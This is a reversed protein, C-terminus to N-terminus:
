APMSRAKQPTTGYLARFTRIFTKYNTLGNQEMLMPISLDSNKLESYFSMTRTACLFDLYTQGTYKKFIRCFYERSIGLRGAADELSVPERFHEQTWNVIDTVRRLDRASAAETEPLVQTSFNRYLTHLFEYFRATFLLQYGDSEQDFLRQMELLSDILGPTKQVDAAPIFTTFHLLGRNPLLEQLRKSSFQILTYPIQMAHEIRTMHLEGSNIILLDGPTLEYTKAQVVATMHGEQIWIFELHEHWHVPITLGECNRCGRCGRAGPGSFFVPLHDTEEVLEHRVSQMSESSSNVPELPM